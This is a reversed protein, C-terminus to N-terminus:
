QTWLEATTARTSFTPRSSRTSFKAPITKTTRPIRRTAREDRQSAYTTTTSSTRKVNATTPTSGGFGLECQIRWKIPRACTSSSGGDESIRIAVTSRQWQWRFLPKLFKITNSRLVDVVIRNKQFIRAYSLPAKEARLAM